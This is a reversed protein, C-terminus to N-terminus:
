EIEYGLSFLFDLDEKKFKSIENEKYRDKTKPVKPISIASELENRQVDINLFEVLKIIEQEPNICLEDFNLLYIKDSGIKRQLEVVRNNAKVWYSFSAAPVDEMREPIDVGYLKAWNFFQQQNPSFAMDLGYRITHIYKLDKFYSTLNDLVLHSNPEKWGWASYSSLDSVRKFLLHNFRELAWKGKGDGEKNHGYKAMGKLANALFLLENGSYFKKNTMSKELISLGTNIKNNNFRNKYYWKPRKFLL